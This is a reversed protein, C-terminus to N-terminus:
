NFPLENENFLPDGTPEEAKPAPKEGQKKQCNMCLIKEFKSQSYSAVKQTVDAGCDACKLGSDEAKGSNGGKSGTKFTYGRMKSIDLKARELTAVDINRLNPILRKIGNNLCNTYASMKVDREDIEDPSKLGDKGKSFFDDKMSLSGECEVFQDKLIFRAKYTFTKYGQADAEVIPKGILQISIGFLRAVKTAGSEQLYPTGGILVWDLENTIRLAADMIKNMAVIYKEAQEALYLINDTNSDLLGGSQPRATLDTIENEVTVIENENM